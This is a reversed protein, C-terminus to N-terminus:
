INKNGSFLELLKGLISRIEKREVIIDIQGNAENRRALGFDKPVAKKITQEVVRPGAFCFLAEPESIIIDAVTVFSASVGGTTPNTIVCFYPIKSERLRSIGSVTKAMQMLSLIGEQMRAGGSASFIVLPIKKSISNDTIIRVKEGVVSGMSGGLFSFDMVGLSANFGRIKAEGVVIAEKIVSKMIAEDLREGYPKLDQFGLFDVSTIEAAVEKFTGGDVVSDIREWANMYDHYGCAPCVKLGSLFETEDIEKKCNKCSIEPM